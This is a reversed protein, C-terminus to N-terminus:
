ILGDRWPGTIALTLGPDQLNVFLWRGDPSFCAGAWESDRFDGNFGREGSLRMLNRAFVFVEGGPTLGHLHQQHGEADQCLVLGGRPSYAINDPYDLVAPDDSEYVLELTSADPRYAWVQGCAADGGSTSTFYVAGDGLICGELRTFGSGGNARGQEVVGGMTGDACLGRGPEDIPVWEVPLRRGAQQGLRLDPRGPVRLMELRGGRALEGAVRPTFRYFGAWPKHDETLYVIGSRPDVAAAEHKFQGMAPLARADSLGDAPVEFVFGHPHRLAHHGDDLENPGADMVTEECSLWTGWPTVGGACNVLTGSLSARAEVLRGAATDFVLTTTGGACGPDYTASAPAFSGDGRTVEHNRVLTIRDGDARVVGMGDHQGPTPMDGSLADGTWGFSTYSFGRPLAILPLGTARDAVPAVPGYGAHLGGPRGAAALLRGLPSAVAVAGALGAGTRLWHRRSPDRPRGAQTV